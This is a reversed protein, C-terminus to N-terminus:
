GYMGEIYADTQATVHETQQTYKETTREKDELPPIIQDNKEDNAFLDNNAESSTRHLVEDHMLEENKDITYCQKVLLVFLFAKAIRM